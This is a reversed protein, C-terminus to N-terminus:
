IDKHASQNATRDESLVRYAAVAGIVVYWQLYSLTLLRELLGVWDTEALLVTAAALGLGTAATVVTYGSFLSWGARRRFLRSFWLVSVLVSIGM